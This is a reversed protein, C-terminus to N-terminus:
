SCNVIDNSIYQWPTQYHYLIQYLPISSQQIQRYQFKTYAPITSHRFFLGVWVLNKIKGVSNDICLDTPLDMQPTWTIVSPYTRRYNGLSNDTPLSMSEVFPNVSPVTQWYTGVSLDTLFLRRFPRRINRDTIIPSNWCDTPLHNGVLLKGVSIKGDSTRRYFMM